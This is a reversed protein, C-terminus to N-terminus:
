FLGRLIAGAIGALVAKLNGRSRAKEAQRELHEIRKEALRLSLEASEARKRSASEALKRESSARDLDAVISKLVEVQQRLLANTEETAAVQTALMGAELRRFRLEVAARECDTLLAEDDLPRADQGYALSCSTLIM